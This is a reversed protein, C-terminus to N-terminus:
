KHSYIYMAYRGKDTYTTIFEIITEHLADCIKEQLVNIVTSCVKERM